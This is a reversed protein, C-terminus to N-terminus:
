RPWCTIYDSNNRWNATQGQVPNRSFNALSKLSVKYYLSSTNHLCGLGGLVNNQGGGVM